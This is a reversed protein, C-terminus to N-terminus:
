VEEKKSENKIGRIFSMFFVVFISLIFGTVFAVAVILTKKPKIPYDSIKMDGIISTNVLKNKSIKLKEEKIKYEIEQIKKPINISIQNNLNRLKERKLIKKEKKLNEIQNQLNLILNQNNLVEMASLMNQTDNYSKRKSIKTINDQYEKLKSNNFLLKNDLSVLDVEKIFKIKEKLNVLEIDKVYEIQKNLNYLNQNIVDKYEDLKFKYEDQIFKLVENNKSIAIENSFAQTSVEIFNPVNKVISIKSVIASDEKIVRKNDVNFILKIKKELLTSNEVLEGNNSAIKIVSSVEFIPTKSYAYIIAILTVVSTFIVIFLKKNWITRFLDRLDIEDEEIRDM